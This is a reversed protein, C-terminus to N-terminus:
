SGKIRHISLCILFSYKFLELNISIQEQLGRNWLTGHMRYCLVKPQKLFPDWDLYSIFLLLKNNTLIRSATFDLILDAHDYKQHLGHEKSFAVVMEMKSHGWMASPTLSGEPAAKIFVRIGNMLFIGKFGSQKGFGTIGDDESALVECM